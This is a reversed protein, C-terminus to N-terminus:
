LKPQEIGGRKLEEASRTPIYPWKHDWPTFHPIPVRWLEQGIPYSGALQQREADTVGLGTANDAAGDGTLDLDALGGTVGVIKVVLGNDSPVWTAKDRDYYGTPM